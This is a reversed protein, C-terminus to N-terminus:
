FCAFEMHIVKYEHMEREGIRYYGKPRVANQWSEGGEFIGPLVSKWWM